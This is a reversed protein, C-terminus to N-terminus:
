PTLPLKDIESYGQGVVIDRRSHIPLPHRCTATLRLALTEASAVIDALGSDIASRPMGDFKASAPDQVLVMGGKEKVAKLGLTGDTGMGSLIVCIAQERRDDALARFFFDIPLRRGRSEVPDLLHLADHLISMDKNPPIM